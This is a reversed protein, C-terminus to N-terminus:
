AIHLASSCSLLLVNVTFCCTPYGVCNWPFLFHCRFGIPPLELSPLLSVLPHLRCGDKLLSVCSGTFFFLRPFALLFFFLYCSCIFVLSRDLTMCQKYLLPFPREMDLVRQIVEKGVEREQGDCNLPRKGEGVHVTYPSKSIQGGAFTIYIIHQGEQTPKYTCRYSSNGKDEVTCEVTDKKGSPDVIVM